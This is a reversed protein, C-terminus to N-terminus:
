VVWEIWCFFREQKFFNVNNKKRFFLFFYPFVIYSVNSSLNFGYAGQNKEQDEPDESRKPINQKRKRLM